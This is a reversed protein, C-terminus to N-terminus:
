FSAACRTADADAAGLVEALERLLTANLANLVEPRNLRILLVPGHPELLLTDPM